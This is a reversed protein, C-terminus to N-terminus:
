EYRLAEMPNIKAAELEGAYGAVSNAVAHERSIYAPGYVEQGEEDIVVPVMASKVQFGRCDIILGSYSPGEPKGTAGPQRLSEIKRIGEPLVLDTFTGRIELTVFANVAGDKEYTVDVLPASRIHELIAERITQDESLVDKILIKSNIHIEEVMKLLNKRATQVAEREAIARGQAPNDAKSPPRGQGTAEIISNTWDIKGYELAQVYHQGFVLVPQLFVALAVFASLPLTWCKM